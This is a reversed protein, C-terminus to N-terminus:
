VSPNEKNYNLIIDVAEAIGGSNNDAVTYKAIEKIEDASNGMAFSLQAEELMPLDNYSDGIAATEDKNIGLFEALELIGNWKTVNPEMIEFSGPGSTTIYVRDSFEEDFLRRVEDEGYPHDSLNGILIKLGDKGKSKLEDFPDTSINLKCQVNIGYNSEIRLHHLSKPNLTNSYYTDDDYFHYHVKCKEAFAILDKLDEDKLPHTNLIKDKNLKIIAGNNAITPNDVGMLSNAYDLSTAIRGSCLVSKVGASNLKQIAETTSESVTDESNLLTGDMDIAFLKIM